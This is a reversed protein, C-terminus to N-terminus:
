FLLRLVFEVTRAPHATSIVGFDANGLTHGPIDFNATNLLNFFEARFETRIREGAPFTRALSADVTKSFPGRLVSRPSNGFTYPAPQAFAAINFYHTLSSPGSRPDGIRNPRLTGAPFANTTNAATFVTFPAGSQLTSNVGAKWGGFLKNLLAYESVKPVDYVGAFVFRQPVDSGSLGKDLRRHYADMYSGPDGYEDGSAVDDIFKSFTYHATLTLERTLRREARVFM